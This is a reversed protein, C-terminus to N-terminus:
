RRLVEPEPGEPRLRPVGPFRTTPLAPGSDTVPQTPLVPADAPGPAPEGPPPPLPPLVTVPRAEGPLPPLEPEVAHSVGCVALILILAARFARVRHNPLGNVLM